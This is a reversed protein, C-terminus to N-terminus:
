TPVSCLIRVFDTTYAHWQVFPGVRTDALPVQRAVFDQVAAPDHGSADPLRYAQLSADAGVTLDNKRAWGFSRTVSAQEDITRSRYVWPIPDSPAVASTYASVQADVYRRYVRDQWTVGAFWAWETRTTFLPRQVSATGYSGEPTGSARDFVVNGDATFTLFRGDFRPAVYEAGLSWSAPQLTLRGMLTQQRGALNTEKPELVFNEIGGPTVDLDFDPYLSWVDKTIVVLRVRDPSSGRLPVCLVLSVQPLLRLNRASEDVLIKRYRDGARVLVEHLIVDRQTTTHLADLAAPAPDRGEVPDLRVTEVAEVLKGEPAPDVEAGLAREADRITELEYQSYAGTISVPAQQASAPTALLLWGVAAARAPPAIM